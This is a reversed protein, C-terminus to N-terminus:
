SRDSALYVVVGGLLATAAVCPLLLALNWDQTMSAFSLATESHAAASQEIQDMLSLWGGANRIQAAAFGVAALICIALAFLHAWTVPKSVRELAAHRRRLQARWWIIGPTDLRAESRSKALSRQFSTTILITDSCISCSAVHQRLEPECSEPWHGSKLLAVVESERSCHGLNM